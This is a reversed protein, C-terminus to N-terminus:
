CDKNIQSYCDLFCLCSTKVCSMDKVSWVCSGPFPPRKMTREAAVRVTVAGYCAGHVAPAQLDVRGFSSQFASFACASLERRETSM